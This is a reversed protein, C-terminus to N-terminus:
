IFQFIDFGIYLNQIHCKLLQNNIEDLTKTIVGHKQHRKNYSLESNQKKLKKM